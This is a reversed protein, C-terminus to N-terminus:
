IFRNEPVSKLIDRVDGCVVVNKLYELSKPHDIGNGYCGNKGFEKKIVEQIIENPHSELKLLKKKIEPDEKFVSLGRVAQLVVEPDSDMLYSSLVNKTLPQRLRGIASVAERRVSSSPDNTVLDMYKELLSLDELKALNKVASLRVRENEHELLELLPKKDFGKDLRGLGELTRVLYGINNSKVVDYIRVAEGKIQKHIDYRGM